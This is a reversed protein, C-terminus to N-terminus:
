KKKKEKKKKKKQKKKYTHKKRATFIIIEPNVRGHIVITRYMNSCEVRLAKELKLQAKKKKNKKKNEKKEKKFRVRVAAAISALARIGLCLTQSFLLLPLSLTQLLFLSLFFLAPLISQTLQFSPM